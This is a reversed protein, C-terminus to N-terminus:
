TVVCRCETNLAEILAAKQEKMDARHQKEEATLQSENPAKWAVYQAVAVEDIRGLVQLCSEIYM